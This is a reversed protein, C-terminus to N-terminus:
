CCENKKNYDHVNQPCSVEAKSGDRQRLKVTLIKNPDCTTSMVRVLRRDQWATVTVPGKQVSLHHGRCTLLINYPITYMHM